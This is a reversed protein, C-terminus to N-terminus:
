WFPGRRDGVHLRAAEREIDELERQEEVTTAGITDVISIGEASIVGAMYRVLLSRYDLESM